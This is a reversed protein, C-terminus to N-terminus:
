FHHAVRLTHPFYPSVSPRAALTLIRTYIHMHMIYKHIYTFFSTIGSTQTFFLSLIHAYEDTYTFFSTDSSSHTCSLSLSYARMHIHAHIYGHKHLFHHIVLHTHALYLLKANLRLPPAGYPSQAAQMSCSANLLKCQAAQM